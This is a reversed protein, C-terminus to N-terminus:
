REITIRRRRPGLNRFRVTVKKEPLLDGAREAWEIAVIGPGDIYEELGLDAIESRDRLRYLDVHVLPPDGGYENIITFTPSTAARASLGLGAAMGKVFVTKGSGLPGILAVTSGPPLGGTLRAAIRSTEEPSSSDFRETITKM